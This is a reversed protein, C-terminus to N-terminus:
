VAKEWYIIVAGSGGKAGATGKTPKVTTVTVDVPGSGPIPLTITKQEGKLGGQGGRGGDGTNPLPKEVGSRAYADGNQIDTYAPSFHQGSASTFGGFTTDGGDEGKEGGAGITVNFSQQNNIPITDFFVKGGLGGRGPKGDSQFTGDTGDTGGAGGGVLIIFLETVGDPAVWTQNETLMIRNKYLFVGDAQLLSSQCSTLVGGSFSFTQMTRRGTTANSEDLQVTDVDGIESSPNGRGTVEIINGGYSTLIHRAAALAQEKTKIFPNDVSVTASSAASNGSVVYQTGSGDNLKFIVAALDNNAKLVPYNSMNDLTLENGQSWLPEITLNGTEADARPFTNTALCAACLIDGCTKGQVDAATQVTVPLDAYNPDVTYLEAFNTGLQAVISAAWGKLTTPLTEPAIYERDAVLGIIDVLDWSMTLGNDGTKWGGSYQYFKGIPKYDVTGDGLRVGISIPIGQREEISKFIGAKNRPEFRRDLNDMSLQCTGYPLALCSINAQQQITLESIIEGSWQEYIGPIIEAIRMRRGGRSWKTATVRIADPAYVTFGDISVSTATNGTYTQTHYTTGGQKIEVTFDAPVGDQEDDSFYVSCAQLISVNSFQLEAWQPTAFIGDADAVGRSIAGVNGLEANDDPLLNYTGDLLTRNRELTSYKKTAFQKDHLQEPRSFSAAEGQEAEGYVLDPSIIDIVANIYMRRTDGVIAAKYADSQNLM